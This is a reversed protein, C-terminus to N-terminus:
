VVRFLCGFRAIRDLASDPKRMVRQAVRENSQVKSGIMEPVCVAMLYAKRSRVQTNVRTGIVLHIAM